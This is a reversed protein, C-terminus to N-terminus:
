QARIKGTRDIIDIQPDKAIIKASYSNDSGATKFSISTNLPILNFYKEPVQFEIKIVDTKILTAIITSTNVIAGESIARFGIKGTFPASIRTKSLQEELIKKNIHLLELNTESIDYEEQSIASASLLQKQRQLINEQHTIEIEAKKLQVLLDEDYLKVLIQGKKIVEGDEFYMKVVRGTVESKIDVSESAITTGTLKLTNKVTSKGKNKQENTGKLNTGQTSPKCSMSSIIILVLYLTLRQIM